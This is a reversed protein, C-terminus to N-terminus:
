NIVLKKFFTSKDTEVKIFYIGKPQSSLDVKAPLNLQNLYIEDGFANFIRANIKENIGEITFIGQTPNPYIRINTEMTQEIGTAPMKVQTVESLGNIQFNGTNMEPNYTVELDSTENTEPRYMRFNLLDGEQYGDIEPTTPDDGMAVIKYFSDRNEFEAMGVCNGMKDFVGIIDGPQLNETAPASFLIVHPLM